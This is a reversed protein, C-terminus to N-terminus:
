IKKGDLLITSNLDVIGESISDGQIEFSVINEQCDYFRKADSYALAITISYIGNILPMKQNSDIIIEDDKKFDGLHTGRWLTNTAYVQVRQRDKIIFGFIPNNVDENFKIKVRITTEKGSNIVSTNEMDTDLLEASIIEAGLTGYRYHKIEGQDIVSGTYTKVVCDVAGDEILRGNAILLARGCIDTIINSNHSVIVITKGKEKFENMKELCKEQFALDGVALVEDIILIDPDVHVAVSFGLRVYMGSSYTKVPVDIFERIGAFDVIDDFREDIERRSLGLISANIYINERGTLEPHFGAGLELLGAVRGNVEVSGETPKTIGLLITLLTSKGSGNVGIIGLTEGERVELNIDRLAWFDEYCGRRFPNIKNVLMDREHCIRYRKGVNELKIM